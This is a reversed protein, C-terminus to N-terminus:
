YIQKYLLPPHPKFKAIDYGELLWSLQQSNLEVIKEDMKKPWKFRSKELRKLWLAFGTRDWYLLKIRDKHKNTFVFLSAECLALNLDELVLVSLGNIQKRFDVPKRYLYIDKFNYLAKM